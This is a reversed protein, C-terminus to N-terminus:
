TLLKMVGVTNYKASVGQPSSVLSLNFPRNNCLPSVKEYPRKPHNNIQLYKVCNSVFVTYM